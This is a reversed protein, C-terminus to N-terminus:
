GKLLFTVARQSYIYIKPETIIRSTQDTNSHLDPREALIRLGVCICLECLFGKERVVQYSEPM